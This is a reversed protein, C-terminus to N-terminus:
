REMLFIGMMGNDWLSTVMLKQLSEKDMGYAMKGNDWMNTVMPLHVREKDMLKKM